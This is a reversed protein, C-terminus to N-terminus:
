QGSRGIAALKGFLFEVEVDDVRGARAVIQLKVPRALNAGGNNLASCRAKLVFLAQARKACNEILREPHEEAGIDCRAICVAEVNAAQARLAMLQLRDDGANADRATACARILTELPAFNFDAPLLEPFQIAPAVARRDLPFAAGRECAAVAAAIEGARVDSGAAKSEPRPALVARAPPPLAAMVM